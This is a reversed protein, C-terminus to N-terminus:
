GALPDDLTAYWGPERLVVARSRFRRGAVITTVETHELVAAPLTVALPAGCSWTTSAVPM